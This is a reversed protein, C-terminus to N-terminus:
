VTFTKFAEAMRSIADEQNSIRLHVVLCAGDTFDRTM